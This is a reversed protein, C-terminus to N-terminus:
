DLDEASGRSESQTIERRHRDERLQDIFTGEWLQVDALYAARSIMHAAIPATLFVFLIIGASRTVVAVDGFFLMDAVAILGVGLTGAKTTAHMRTLVDPFRLLGIAAVLVLMAGLLLFVAGLLETM